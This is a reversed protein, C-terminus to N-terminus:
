MRVIAVAGVKKGENSGRHDHSPRHFSLQTETNTKICVFDIKARKFTSVAAQIAEEASTYIKDEQQLNGSQRIVRVVFSGPNKLRAVKQLQGTYVVDKNAPDKLKQEQNSSVIIGAVILVLFLVCAVIIETPSQTKALFFLTM